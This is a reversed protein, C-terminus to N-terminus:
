FPLVPRNLGPKCGTKIQNLLWQMHERNRAPYFREGELWLVPIKRQRRLYTLFAKELRTLYKSPIEQEYARGRSAISEQVKEVSRHYYIVLDPVPLLPELTQFLAELQQYQEKKLNVKAFVLSKNVWYDAVVVHRGSVKRHVDRFRDMLFSLELPYALEGPSRYFAPLLPNDEFQEELLDGGMAAALKSALTSKGAGINGEIAIFNCSM